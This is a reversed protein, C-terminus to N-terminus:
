MAALLLSSKEEKKDVNRQPLPTFLSAQSILLPANPIAPFQEEFVDPLPVVTLSDDPILFDYLPRNAYDIQLVSYLQVAANNSMHDQYTPLFATPFAALADPVACVDLDPYIPEYVESPLNYIQHDSVFVSQPQLPADQQAMEDLNVFSISKAERSEDSYFRTTNLHRQKSKDISSLIRIVGAYVSFIDYSLKLVPLRELEKQIAKVHKPIGSVWMGLFNKVKWETQKIKVDFDTLYKMVNKGYEQIHNKREIYDKVHKAEASNQNELSYPFVPKDPFKILTNIAMILFSLKGLEAGEDVEQILCDDTKGPATNKLSERQAQLKVLDAQLIAHHYSHLFQIANPLDEAQIANDCMSQYLHDAQYRYQELSKQDREKSELRKDAPSALLAKMTNESKCCNYEQLRKLCSSHGLDQALDLTTKGSQNRVNPDAGYELLLTVMEPKNNKVAWYLARNGMESNWSDCPAHQELLLRSIAYNNQKVAYLLANKYHLADLQSKDHVHSSEILLQACDWLGLECALEVPTKNENNLAIQSGGISLVYLIAKANNRLEPWQKVVCHLGTNGDPKTRQTPSAGAKLLANAIELQGAKVADIFAMGANNDDGLKFSKDQVLIEASVWHGLSCALELPTQKAKNRVTSDFGHELLLTVMKSNDKIVAEHLCLNGTAISHWDISAKANILAEVTTLEDEHVASHLAGGYHYTDKENTKKAKAIAEVGEWYKLAAALQIPTKKDQNVAALNAKYSILLEITKVNKNKVACHLSNNKGDKFRMTTPAGAELLCQAMDYRNEQVASLLASGYHYTDKDNTKKAKAITEVSEWYGLSVALDIPTKKDQNVAALDAGNEILQKIESTNNNNIAAFLTRNNM